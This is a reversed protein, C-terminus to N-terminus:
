QFLVKFGHKSGVCARSQEVGEEGQFHFASLLEHELDEESSDGGIKKKPM